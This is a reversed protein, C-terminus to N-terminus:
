LRLRQPPLAPEAPYGQNTRPGQHRRQELYSPRTGGLGESRTIVCLPALVRDITAASISPVKAEIDDSLKGYHREYFPLWMPIALVLKKSCMQDSALWFKVRKGFGGEYV